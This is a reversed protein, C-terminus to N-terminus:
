LICFGLVYWPKVATGLVLSQIMEEHARISGDVFGLKNKMQIAMTIARSWAHYNDRKLTVPIFISGPHENPHLYLPDSMDDVSPAAPVDAAVM